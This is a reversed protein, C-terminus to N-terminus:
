GGGATIGLVSPSSNLPIPSSIHNVSDLVSQDWNGEPLFYERVSFDTPQLASVRRIPNKSSPTLPQRPINRSLKNYLAVVELTEPLQMEVPDGMYANKHVIIADREQLLLTDYPKHLGDIFCKSICSPRFQIFDPYLKLTEIWQKFSALYTDLDGQSQQLTPVEGKVTEYDKARTNAVRPHHRELLEQLVRFGDPQTYHKTIASSGVLCGSKITDKVITYLAKALKAHSAELREETVRLSHQGLPAMYEAIMPHVSLDLHPNIEGLKPLLHISYKNQSLHTRLASYYQYFGYTTDDELKLSSSVKMLKDPTGGYPGDINDASWAVLGDFEHTRKVHLSVSKHSMRENM